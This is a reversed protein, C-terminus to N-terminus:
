RTNDIFKTQFDEWVEPGLDSLLNETLAGGDQFTVHAYEPSHVKVEVTAFFDKLRIFEDKLWTKYKEAMTLFQTELLWNVPDIEYVWGETYPASNLLSSNTIVAKNLATITGSIPAYINLQKGKRIITFLRDGKMIKEGTNRTEIRTLKGTVHQLFDDIGIKVTGDRKMFAWTHTKDFYLGKPVIVSNEEFAQISVEPAVLVAGTTMKKRRVIMDMIFGAAGIAFLIVIVIRLIAYTNAPKSIQIESVNIKDLQSKREIMVLDSFGNTNLYQQGDTLVWKLFAVEADSKPKGSTVSYINGSLSKPYKGIWVGRSFDQLNDYIAEMYDIKGNGNKDIPVLSVNKAFGQIEPDIIQVLKCFGLAYPDKQVKELMEEGSGVKVCNAVPTSINLFNGIGSTVSADNLTYVCMPIDTSNGVNGAIIGWSNKESNTLIRALKETSIGKRCIEDRFPNSSNMVPVIVDHGVVMSWTSKNHVAPFSEDRIFGIGRGSNLLGAIKIDESKVVNFKVKPDFSGYENVWKMTLNYLEPSTFLEIPGQNSPSEGTVTDKSIAISCSLLLIGIFLFIRTRM